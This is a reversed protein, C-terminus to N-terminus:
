RLGIEHKSLLFAFKLLPYYIMRQDSSLHLGNSDRKDLAMNLCIDKLSLSLLFLLSAYLSCLPRFV